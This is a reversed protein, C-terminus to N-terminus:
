RHLAGKSLFSETDSSSILNAPAEVRFRLLALVGSYGGQWHLGRVRLPRQGTRQLSSELRGTAQKAGASLWPGNSQMTGHTGTLDTVRLDLQLSGLLIVLGPDYLGKIGGTPQKGGKM